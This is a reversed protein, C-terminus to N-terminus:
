LLFKLVELWNETSDLALMNSHLANRFVEEYTGRCNIAEDKLDVPDLLRVQVEDYGQEVLSKPSLGGQMLTCAFSLVDSRGYNLYAFSHCLAPPITQGVAVALTDSVPTEPEDTIRSVLVPLRQCFNCQGDVPDYMMAAMNRTRVLRSSITKLMEFTFDFRSDLKEPKASLLVCMQCSALKVVQLVEKAWPYSIVFYIEKRLYDLPRIIIIRHLHSPHVCNSRLPQCLNKLGIAPSEQNAIIFIVVHGLLDFSSLEDQTLLFDDFDKESSGVCNEVETRLTRAPGADSACLSTKGRDDCKCPVDFLGEEDQSGHCLACYLSARQLIETGRTCFYGVTNQPIVVCPNSPYVIIKRNNDEHIEIGLLILGLKKHCLEVAEHLTMNGFCKSLHTNCILSTKGFNYEKEWKVSDHTQSAIDEVRDPLILNALLTSFGPILCSYGMLRLKFEAYCFVSVDGDEPRPQFVEDFLEKSKCQLLELLVPSATSRSVDLALKINGLDEGEQDKSNQNSLFICARAKHIAALERGDQVLGQVPHLGELPSECNVCPTCDGLFVLDADRNIRTKIFIRIKQTNLHGCFVIHKNRLIPRYPTFDPFVALIMRVLRTCFNMDKSVYYIFGTVVFWWTLIRILYKWINILHSIEAYGGIEEIKLVFIVRMIQHGYGVATATVATFYLWTLYCLDHTQQFYLM